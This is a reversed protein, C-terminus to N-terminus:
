KRLAWFLMAGLAGFSVLGVLERLRLGLLTYGHSDGACAAGAMFLLLLSFLPKRM